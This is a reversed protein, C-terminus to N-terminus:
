EARGWDTSGTTPIAICTCSPLSSYAMRSLASCYVTPSVHVLCRRVEIEIEPWMTPYDVANQITAYIERSFDIGLGPDCDEYYGVAEVFEEEAEPHFSFTM